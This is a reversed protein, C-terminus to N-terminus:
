HGAWILNCGHADNWALQNGSGACVNPGSTGQAAPGFWGMSLQADAATSLLLAAILIWRWLM